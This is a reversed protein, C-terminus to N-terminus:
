KQPLLMTLLFEKPILYFLGMHVSKMFLPTEEDESQNM